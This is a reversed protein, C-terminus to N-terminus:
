WRSPSGLGQGAEPRGRRTAAPRATSCQDPRKPLGRRTSPASEFQDVGAEALGRAVDETLLLVPKQSHKRWLLSVVDGTGTVDSVLGQYGSIEAGKRDRLTVPYTSWGRAGVSTLTDIFRDSAISISLGGAWLLDGRRRGTCGETQEFWVPFPLEEGRGEAITEVVRRGDETLWPGFAPKGEGEPAVWLDREESFPRVEM